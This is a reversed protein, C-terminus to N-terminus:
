INDPQQSCPIPAINLSKVIDERRIIDKRTYDETYCDGYTMIVVDTAKENDKTKYDSDEYVSVYSVDIECDCGTPQLMICIGPQGPDTSKYARLIGASTQIELKEEMDPKGKKYAITNM